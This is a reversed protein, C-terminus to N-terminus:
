TAERLDVTEGSIRDSCEYFINQM